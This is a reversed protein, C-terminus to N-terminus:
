LYRPTKKLNKTPKNGETRCKWGVECAAYRCPSGKLDAPNISASHRFANQPSLPSCFVCAAATHHQQGETTERPEQPPPALPAEQKEGKKQKTKNETLRAEHLADINASAWCKFPRPRSSYILLCAAAHRAERFVCVCVFVRMFWWPTHTHTHRRSGSLLTKDWM